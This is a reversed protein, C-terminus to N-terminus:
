CYRGRNAQFLQKEEEETREGEPIKLLSRQDGWYYRVYDSSERHITYCPANDDGSILEAKGIRAMFEFTKADM